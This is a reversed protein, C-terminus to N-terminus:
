DDEHSGQDKKDYVFYGTVLFNLKDNFIEPSIIAQYKGKTIVFRGRKNIKLTGNEITDSLHSVLEDVDENEETRRKIIHKLGVADNGWILTIDDIDSRIFANKIHGNKCDLLKKSPLM